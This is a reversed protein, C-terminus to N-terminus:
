EEDFFNSQLSQSSIIFIHGYKKEIEIKPTFQIHILKELSDLHFKQDNIKRDFQLILDNELNLIRDKNRLIYRIIM